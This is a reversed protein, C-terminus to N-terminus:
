WDIEYLDLNYHRGFPTRQIVHWFQTAEKGIYIYFLFSLLHKYLSFTKFNLFLFYYYILPDEKKFSYSRRHM